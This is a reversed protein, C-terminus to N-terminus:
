PRSTSGSPGILRLGGLRGRPRHGQGGRGLPHYVMEVRVARRRWAKRESSHGASLGSRQRGVVAAVPRPRIHHYIEELVSELAAPGRGVDAHKSRYIELAKLRFELMWEPEGKHASIERVIEESLGPRSKFVPKGATVFDYKYEELGLGAVTENQPM